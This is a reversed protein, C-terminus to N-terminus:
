HKKALVATATRAELAASPGVVQEAPAVRAASAATQSSSNPPLHVIASDLAQNDPADEDEVVVRTLKHQEIVLGEQAEAPERAAGVMAVFRYGSGPITMLYRPEGKREGLAKRLASIHVTLNGEEVFQGPWVRELLEEKSVVRGRSELLAVLLDFAKPKLHVARNDRLLIRRALDVRFDDFEYSHAREVPLM